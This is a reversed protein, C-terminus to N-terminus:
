GALCESLTQRAQKYANVVVQEPTDNRGRESAALGPLQLTLPLLDLFERYQRQHTQEDGAM